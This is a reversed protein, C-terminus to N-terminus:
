KLIKNHNIRANKMVEYEFVILVLDVLNILYM